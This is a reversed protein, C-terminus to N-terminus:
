RMEFGSGYGGAGGGAADLIRSGIGPGIPPELTDVKAAGGVSDMQM